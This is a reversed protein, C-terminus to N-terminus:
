GGGGSGEVKALVYRSLAEVTFREGFEEPTVGEAFARALDEQGVKIRFVDELRFCLDLLDLSEANLDQLIRSEPAIAEPPLSLVVALQQRVQGSVSELTARESM